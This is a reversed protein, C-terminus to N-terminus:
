RHAQLNLLPLGEEGINEKIYAASGKKGRSKEVRRTYEKMSRNYEELVEKRIDDPLAALVEPDLPAPAM